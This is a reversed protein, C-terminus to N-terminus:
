DSGLNHVSLDYIHWWLGLLSAASSSNELDAWSTLIESVAPWLVSHVHLSGIYTLRSNCKTSTCHIWLAVWWFPEVCSIMPMWLGWVVCKALNWFQRIGEALRLCSATAGSSCVVSRDTCLHVTSFTKKKKMPFWHLYVCAYNLLGVLFM